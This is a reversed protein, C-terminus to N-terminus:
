VLPPFSIKSCRPAVSLHYAVATASRAILRKRHRALVVPVTTRLATFLRTATCALQASLGEQGGVISLDTRVTRVLTTQLRRPLRRQIRSRNGSFHAATNLHATRQRRARTGVISDRRYSRTRHAVVRRTITYPVCLGAFVHCERPSPALPADFNPTDGTPFLVAIKLTLDGSRGVLLSQCPDAKVASCPRCLVAAKRTSQRRAAHTKQPADIDAARIYLSETGAVMTAAVIDVQPALSIGAPIAASHDLPAAPAHGVAIPLAVNGCFLATRQAMVSRGFRLQANEVSPRGAHATDPRERRSALRRGVGHLFEDLGTLDGRSAPRRSDEGRGM